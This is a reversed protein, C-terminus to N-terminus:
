DLFILSPNLKNLARSRNEELFFCNIKVGFIPVLFCILGVNLCLLVCIAPAGFDPVSLYKASLISVSLAIGPKRVIKDFIDIANM